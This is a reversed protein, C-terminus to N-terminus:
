LDIHISPIIVVDVVERRPEYVRVVRDGYWYLRTDPIVVLEPFWSYPVPEFAPYWADEIVYGAVVRDRWGGPLRHGTEWKKALGPPLGHRDNRYGAFYGVIRERDRDQFRERARDEARDQRAEVRDERDQKAEARDKRDEAREQRNEQRQEARNGDPKGKGGRDDRPGSRNEGQRNSDGDRRDKNDAKEAKRNDGGQTNDSRGPKDDSKGGKSEKKEAKQEEKKGPNGNNGKDKDPEAFAPSVLAAAVTVLGLWHTIPKAKM